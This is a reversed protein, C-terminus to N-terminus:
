GNITFSKKHAWKEKPTEDKTPCDSSHHGMEEFSDMNNDRNNILWQVLGISAFFYAFSFGVKLKTRALQKKAIAPPLVTSPVSENM